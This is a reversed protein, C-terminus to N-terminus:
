GLASGEIWFRVIGFKFIVCEYAKWAGINKVILITIDALPYSRM